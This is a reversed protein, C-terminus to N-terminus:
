SQCYVKYVGRLLASSAHRVCDHHFHVWVLEPGLGASLVLGSREYYVSEGRSEKEQYQGLSQAAFLM